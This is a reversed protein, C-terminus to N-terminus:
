SLKEWKNETSGLEYFTSLDKNELLELIRDVKEELKEVKLEYFRERSIENGEKDHYSHGRWVTPHKLELDGNQLDFKFGTENGAKYLEKDESM